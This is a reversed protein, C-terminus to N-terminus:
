AGKFALGKLARIIIEPLGPDTGYHVEFDQIRKYLDEPFKDCFWEYVGKGTRQCKINVVNRCVNWRYGEPTKVIEARDSLARVMAGNKYWIKTTPSEFAPLGMSRERVGHVFWERKGCAAMIAPGDANHLVGHLAFIKSGDPYVRAPGVERSIKGNHAWTAIGNHIFAPMDDFSHLMLKNVKKLMTATIEETKITWVDNNIVLNRHLNHEYYDIRSSNLCYFDDGLANAIIKRVSWLSCKDFNHMGHPCGCDSQPHDFSNKLSM